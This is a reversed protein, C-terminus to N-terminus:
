PDEGDGPDGGEAYGLAELQGAVDDDPRLPNGPRDAPGRLRPDYKPRDREWAQLAAHLREVDGPRSPALDTAQAPDAVLDHLALGGADSKTLALPGEVLLRWRTKWRDRPLDPFAARVEPLRPTAAELESVVVDTVGLPRLAPADAPAPLGTLALVTGFLDGTSVPGPVRVADMARPFRIVLPVHVLPRHLDWRHDYMGHDGLNEGHDSTVIVVTDDLDGAERLAAVLRGTATDLDRLAADYVAAFAEQDVPPIEARGEMAAMLRFLSGDTSLSREVLAPDAVAARAAASPIRPHHAELLNVYALWPQDDPLARRWGLFTDVARGACDKHLVLHEPWGKRAPDPVWAPGIEVSRDTPLLKGRTEAACAEGDEGRWAYRTTEFGQLLNTQESLYPNSSWAFTAYGHGSLHEALTVHRGDLWLWGVRAGHSSTPLGTFLSGHAPVTWMGPSYAREFVAAETALADLAPSTPRPHGYLSLRDARVTDWLVVLVNPPRGAAPAPAPAPPPPAEGTCAWLALAVSSM